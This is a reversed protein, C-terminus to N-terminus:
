SGDVLKLSAEFREDERRCVEVLDVERWRGKGRSKGWLKVRLRTIRGDVVPL